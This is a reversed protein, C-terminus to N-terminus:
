GMNSVETINIQSVLIIVLLFIYNQQKM